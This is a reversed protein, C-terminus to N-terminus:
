WIVDIFGSSSIVPDNTILTLGYMYATASIIRDHLEPIDDIEFAKVLIDFSLPEFIITENKYIYNGTDTLTTEIRGKESLYGIEAFVIAPVLIEINGKEANLFIDKVRQSLKRKELRLVLAMTDTVFRDNM